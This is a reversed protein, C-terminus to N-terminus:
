QTRVLIKYLDNYTEVNDSANPILKILINSCVVMLFLVSLKVKLELEDFMDVDDETLWPIIQAM